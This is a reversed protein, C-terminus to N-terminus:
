ALETVGDHRGLTGVATVSEFRARVQGRQREAVLLSDGQGDRELGGGHGSGADLFGRCPRQVGYPLDHGSPQAVPDAGEPDGGDLPRPAPRVRLGVATHDHREAGDHVGAPHQAEVVRRRPSPVVFPLHQIQM